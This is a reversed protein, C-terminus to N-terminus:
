SPSTSSCTTSHLLLSDSFAFTSTSLDFELLYEQLQHTGIVVWDNPNMGGDYFALCMVMESAKVMTNAGYFGWTVEGTKGPLGFEIKPVNPGTMDKGAVNQADFCDKFPAVSAVKSIGMAEAKLTFSQALANYIDTHLVTYPVVTSLKAGVGGLLLNPNLTLPTGDVYISQVSILYDGSDTRMPTLTKPIQNTSNDFPPIIYYVGAVYFRGTGYSPLCLALKPIVNFDSTVQKTFSSSGPSLSLVGDVPPSVGQLNYACSFTFIRLSVQSLLNGGDTTSFSAADQVVRGTINESGLPNPQQYLCSNENCGNGPIVKCSDSDCAITHLSTLSQLQHCNLWTLNTGLDLLLNLPSKVTTGIDLTTYFQQTPEHKTIPLLYQAQSTLIMATFISLFCLKGMM